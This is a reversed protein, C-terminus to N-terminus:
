AKSVFRRLYPHEPHCIVRYPLADSRLQMYRLSTGVLKHEDATLKSLEYWPQDNIVVLTGHCEVDSRAADDAIEFALTQSTVQAQSASM